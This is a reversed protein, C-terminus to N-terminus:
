EAVDFRFYKQHAILVMRGEFFQVAMQQREQLLRIQYFATTM